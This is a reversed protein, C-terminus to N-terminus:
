PNIRGILEHVIRIPLGIVTEPDGDVREVLSKGLGQYAYAGAKDDGEGSDVYQDIEEASLARFKVHATDVEKVTVDDRCLAVATHVRHIRGSLAEIMRRSDIRDRPCGFVEGELTEVLTDAGLVIRGPYQLVVVRAKRVALALSVEPLSGFDARNFSEDAGSPCVLFPIGAETLLEKRRPSGSALILKM